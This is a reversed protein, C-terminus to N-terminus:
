KYVKKLKHYKISRKIENVVWQLDEKGEHIIIIPKEIRDEIYQRRHLDYQRKPISWYHHKENYEIVIKYEPIYFDVWYKGIKKEGGDTGHLGRPTNIDLLMENLDDFLECAYLNFTPYLQKYYRPNDHNNKIYDDNLKQNDTNEISYIVKRRAADWTSDNELMELLISHLIDSGSKVSTSYKSYVTILKNYFM